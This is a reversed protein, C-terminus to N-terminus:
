RAITGVADGDRLRLHGTMARAGDSANDDANVRMAGGNASGADPSVVSRGFGVRLHGGVWVCSEGNESATFGPGYAADCKVQPSPLDDARAGACFALLGAGVSSLFWVTKARLIM